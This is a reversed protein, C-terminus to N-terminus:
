SLQVEAFLQCCLFSFGCLIDLYLHRSIKRAATQRREKRKLCVRRVFVNFIESPLRPVHQWPFRDNNFFRYIQRIFIKRNCQKCHCGPPSFLKWVCFVTHQADDKRAEWTRQAARFIAHSIRRRLVISTIIFATTIVYEILHFIQYKTLLKSLKLNLIPFHSHHLQRIFLCVDLIFKWWSFFCALFKCMRSFSCANFIEINGRGNFFSVLVLSIWGAVLDLFVDKFNCKCSLRTHKGEEKLHQSDCQAKLQSLSFFAEITNIDINYNNNKTLWLRKRTLHLIMRRRRKLPFKKNRRTSHTCKCDLHNSSIFMYFLSLLSREPLLIIFFSRICRHTAKLSSQTIHMQFLRPSKKAYLIPDLPSKYVVGTPAATVLITM